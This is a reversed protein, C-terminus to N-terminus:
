SPTFISTPRLFRLGPGSWLAVVRSRVRKHRIIRKIRKQANKNMIKQGSIVSEWLYVSQGVLNQFKILYDTFRHRDTIQLYNSVAGVVKVVKGAKRLVVEDSYKLAKARTLSRSKLSASKPPLQGVQQKSAGFISITNKDVAVTLEKPV